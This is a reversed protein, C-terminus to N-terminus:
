NFNFRAIHNRACRLTQATIFDVEGFDRHAARMCREHGRSQGLAMRENAIRCALGLNNIQGIAEDLHAGLDLASACRLDLNLADRTQAARTM